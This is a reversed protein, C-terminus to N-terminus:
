EWRAARGWAALTRDIWARQPGLLIGQTLAGCARGKPGM